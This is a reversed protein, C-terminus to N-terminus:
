RRTGDPLSAPQDVVSRMLRAVARRHRRKEEDSADEPPNSPETKAIADDGLRREGAGFDVLVPRGSYERHANPDDSKELRTTTPELSDLLLRRDEPSLKKLEAKVVRKLVDPKEGKMITVIRRQRDTELDKALERKRRKSTAHVSEGNVHTVNWRNSM